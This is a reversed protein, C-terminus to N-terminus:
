QKTPEAKKKKPTEQSPGATYAAMQKSVKPTDQSYESAYSESTASYSEDDSSHIFRELKQKTLKQFLIKDEEKTEDDRIPADAEGM